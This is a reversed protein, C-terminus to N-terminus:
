RNPEKPHLIDGFEAGTQSLSNVLSAIVLLWKSSVTVTKFGAVGIPKCVSLSGMEMSRDVIVGVTVTVAKGFSGDVAVDMGAVRVGVLVAVTVRVGIGGAVEVGVGIRKKVAAAADSPQMRCGSSTSVKVTGRGFTKTPEEPAFSSKQM